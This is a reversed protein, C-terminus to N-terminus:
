QGPGGHVGELHPRREVAPRRRDQGRHSLRLRCGAPHRQDPHRESQVRQLRRLRGPHLLECAPGVCQRHLQRQLLARHRLLEEAPRGPLDVDHGPLPGRFPQRVHRRVWQEGAHDRVRTPHPPAQVDRHPPTGQGRYQAAPHHQHGRSRHLLYRGAAHSRDADGHRQPQRHVDHRAAAGLHPRCRGGSQGQDEGHLHVSQGAQGQGRLLRPLGPQVPGQHGLGVAREPRDTSRRRVARGRHCNEPCVEQRAHERGQQPDAWRADASGSPAAQAYGGSGLHLDRGQQGLTQPSGTTKDIGGDTGPVSRPDADPRREPRDGPRM